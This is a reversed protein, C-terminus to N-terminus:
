MSKLRETHAVENEITTKLGVIEEKPTEVIIKEPTLFNKLIYALGSIIATRGILAWDFTLTGAEVTSYIVTLVPTLVAVILGFLIDRWNIKGFGATKIVKTEM